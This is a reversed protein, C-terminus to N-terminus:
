LEDVDRALARMVEVRVDLDAELPRVSSEAALRETSQAMKEAASRAEHSLRQLREGAAPRAALEYAGDMLARLEELFALLSPRAPSSAPLERYLALLTSQTQCLSALAASLTHARPFEAPPYGPLLARPPRRREHRGLLWAALLAVALTGLLGLLKSLSAADM